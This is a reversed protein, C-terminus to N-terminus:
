EVRLLPIRITHFVVSDMHVPSRLSFDQVIETHEVGPGPLALKVEKGQLEIVIHTPKKCSCCCNCKAM